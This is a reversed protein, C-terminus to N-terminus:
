LGKDLTIVYREGSWCGGACTVTRWFDTVTQKWREAYGDEMVGGGREKIRKECM